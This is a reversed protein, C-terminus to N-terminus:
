KLKKIVSSIIKVQEEFPLKTTDIEIANKPKILPAEDRTSDQYDREALNQKIEELSVDMGKAVLEQYRREARIDIDAVMFFKAAADPFVISGLDRGDAVFDYSQVIRRMEANVKRRVDSLASIKSVNQSVNPTRIADGLVNGDLLTQVHNHDVELTVNHKNLSDLFENLDGYNLYLLTYARYLSGSDLYHWGTKTAVSKATSSKGSGAPGDITVIM